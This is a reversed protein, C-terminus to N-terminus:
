NDIAIFSNFIDIFSKDINWIYIDSNWKGIDIFQNKSILLDHVIM